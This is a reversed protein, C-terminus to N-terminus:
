RTATIREEIKAVVAASIAAIPDTGSILVIRDPFQKALSLYGERVKEYFARGGSEMRDLQKNTKAMRSIATDVDVDFVFTLSPVLGGTVYMNMDTLLKMSVGRGFGQYAFTAEMFRDCLVITGAALAPKITEHVHQARAAFYLLMECQDCMASNQPSLLIDRIKESIVTGGPERTVCHPVNRSLLIKQAECVQTSKGCGDIGEFTIFLGNM